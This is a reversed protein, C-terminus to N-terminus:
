KVEEPSFGLDYIEDFATKYDADNKVEVSKAQLDVVAEIKVKNLADKIRNECKECRM